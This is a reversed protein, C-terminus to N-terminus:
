SCQGVIKKLLYATKHAVKAMIGQLMKLLQQMDFTNYKSDSTM